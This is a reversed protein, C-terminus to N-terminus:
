EGEVYTALLDLFRQQLEPTMCSVDAMVFAGYRNLYLVEDYIMVTKYQTYPIMSQGSDEEGVVTMSIGERFFTCRVTKGLLPSRKAYFTPSLLLIIPLLVILAGAPYMSFSLKGQVVLQVIALAVVAVSVIAWLIWRKRMPIQVGKKLRTYTYETDM